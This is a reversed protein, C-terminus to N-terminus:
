KRIVGKKLIINGYLASESTAVIAYANRSREYFTYREFHGIAVNEECGSKIVQEYIKWIPPASQNADVTDMLMVPTDVFDDLPLLSLISELLVAGGHGDARILKKAYSAAPFNGDALVIEDGHGMEMLVKVLDPSLNHPIGKLM